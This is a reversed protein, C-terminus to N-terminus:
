IREPGSLEESLKKIFRSLFLLGLSISWGIILSQQAGEISQLENFLYSNIAAVSVASLVLFFFAAYSLIKYTIRIVSELFKISM